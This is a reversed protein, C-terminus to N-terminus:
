VVGIIRGSRWRDVKLPPTMVPKLWGHRSPAGAAKELLERLLTPSAGRSFGEVTASRTLDAHAIAIADLRWDNIREGARWRSATRKYVIGEWGGTEALHWAEDVDAFVPMVGVAPTRLNLEELRTRRVDWRECTMTRGDVALLDFAVFGLRHSCGLRGRRMRDQLAAFDSVPGAMVVLEGDLVVHRVGVTDRLHDLEPVDLRHGHRSWVVVGIDTIHVQTRWGDLKPQAVWGVTSRPAGSALLMPPVFRPM